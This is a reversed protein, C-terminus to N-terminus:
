ALSVVSVCCYESYSGIDCYVLSKIDANDAWVIANIGYTVNEFFMWFCLFSVGLNWSQRVFSTTLIFLLFVACTLCVIPRLPYSPDDAM